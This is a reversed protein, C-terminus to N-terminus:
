VSPRTGDAEAGRRVDAVPGAQAFFAIIDDETARFPLNKVYVTKREDKVVDPRGLSPAAYGGKSRKNQQWRWSQAGHWGIGMLGTKSWGSLTCAASKSTWEMAHVEEDAVSMHVGSDRTNSDNKCQLAPWQLAWDGAARSQISGKNAINSGLGGVKHLVHPKPPAPFRCVQEGLGDDDGPFPRKSTSPLEYPCPTTGEPRQTLTAVDMEAAPVLALAHLSKAKAANGVSGLGIFRTVHAGAGM